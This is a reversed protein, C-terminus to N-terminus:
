GPEDTTGEEGGRHHEAWRESGGGRVVLVRYRVGFHVVAHQVDTRLVM